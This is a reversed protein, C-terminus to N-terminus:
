RSVYINMVFQVSLKVNEELCPRSDSGFEMRRIITYSNRMVYCHGKVRVPFRVLFIMVGHYMIRGINADAM